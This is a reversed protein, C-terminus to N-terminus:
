FVKGDERAPALALRTFPGGPAFPISGFVQLPGPAASAFGAGSSPGSRGRRCPPRPGGRAERRRLTPTSLPRM